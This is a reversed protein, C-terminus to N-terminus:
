AESFGIQGHLRRLPGPAWWNRRGLMAMLSPVLLARVITADILVAAATGVGDEKIFVVRSTAFAGIALCFLIAAQTVLRGSRELGLAVAERDTEGHVHAEYVRGLLFVAYDTSLGFALACILIPQALDLAGRSHYSLVSQLRSDQFILVLLGLTFALTLVNMLVSKVPLVVSGTMLYLVLITGAALIALSLPLKNLLSSKEDIFSATEGTARVRFPADMHRIRKVISVTQSDMGDGWPQVDMQWYRENLSRPPYVKAVNPLKQVRRAFKQVDPRASPPADMLVQIQSSPDVPFGTQLEDSVKKSTLQQPLIRANVGVFHVRSFSVAVSLLLAAALLAVVAPRRMVGHALRYWFGSREQAASRYAARQFAKPSLANIRPGLVSLLAPVAILAVLVAVIATLAGGLGMSYLFPQPFVCLSALAIAVTASSFMITRGATLVTRRLAEAQTGAFDEVGFTLKPPTDKAGYAPTNPRGRGVRVLEERYRSVLFLSYDIALGLGLATVINIAFVNVHGIMNVARLVAFTCFITIMGVLIPILAAVVGRFVFLSVIFLLPFGIAEARSLDKKVQERLESNVVAQAGFEVKPPNAFRDKIAKARDERQPQSLPAFFVALVTARRDRSVFFPDRTEYFTLVRRVDKTGRLKRALTEVDSRVSPDDVTKGGQARYLAVVRAGPWVGSAKGIIPEIVSNESKPDDFGRNDRLLGPVKGGIVFGVITLVALVGLIVKPRHTARDAIGSLFGAERSLTPPETPAVAPLAEGPARVVLTTSGLWIVDGDRLVTPAAVRGGNVFTGNTSGLDELLIGGGDFASVRAHERSLVPDRGLGALGEQSRGFVIPDATVDITRGVARGAVVL